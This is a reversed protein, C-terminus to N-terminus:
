LTPACVYRFRREFMFCLVHAHTHKSLKGCVLSDRIIFLACALEFSLVGLVLLGLLANDRESAILRDSFQWACYQGFLRRRMCDAHRNLFCRLWWRTIRSQLTLPHAFRPQRSRLCRTWDLRPLHLMACNSSRDTALHTEIYGRVIGTWALSM